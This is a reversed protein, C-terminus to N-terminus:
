VLLWLNKFVERMDNALTVDCIEVLYFPYKRTNIMIVYDGAIWTTSLFNNTKNWFKINRGKYKGKLKKEIDSENSLLNVSLRNKTKKWYLDIEKLYNDAFTHDQFGWLDVKKNIASENWQSIEKRFFQELKEEEVFRIQPVAYSESATVRSLESAIEKLIKEKKNFKIREGDVLEQIHEPTALSFVKPSKTSDEILLGKDTLMSATHYATTRKIGTIKALTSPSAERTKLLAKYIKIENESVGLSTLLNEKMSVIINQQRVSTLM